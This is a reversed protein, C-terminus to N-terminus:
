MLTTVLLLGFLIASRSVSSSSGTGGSCEARANEVDFIAKPVVAHVGWNGDVLQTMGFDVGQTIITWAEAETLGYQAMLFKVTQSFANKMARNIDSNDYIDAPSHRVIRLLLTLSWDFSRSQFM